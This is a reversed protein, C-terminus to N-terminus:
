VKKEFEFNFFSTFIRGDQEYKLKYGGTYDDEVTNGTEKTLDLSIKHSWPDLPEIYDPHNVGVPWLNLFEKTSIAGPLDTLETTEKQDKPATESKKFDDEQMKEQSSIKALGENYQVLGVVTKRDEYELNNKKDTKFSAVKSMKIKIEDAFDTELVIIDKHIKIIKGPLTAGNKLVVQDASVSLAMGSILSWCLLFKKTM